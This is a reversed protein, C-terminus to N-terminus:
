EIFNWKWIKNFLPDLGLTRFWCWSVARWTAAFMPFTEAALASRDLQLERTLAGSTSPLVGSCRADDLPKRFVIRVIRTEPTLLLFMHANTFGVLAYENQKMVFTKLRCTGSIRASQHLEHMGLHTTRHVSSYRVCLTWHADVTEVNKRRHTSLNTALKELEHEGYMLTYCNHAVWHRLLASHRGTGVM